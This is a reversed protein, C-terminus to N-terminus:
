TSASAVEQKWIEIVGKGDKSFGGLIIRKDDVSIANVKSLSGAEGQWMQQLGSEEGSDLSYRTIKGLLTSMTLTCSDSFSLAVIPGEAVKRVQSQSEELGGWTKGKKKSGKDGQKREGGFSTLLNGDATGAALIGSSSVAVSMVFPPSLSMGEATPPSELKRRSLTKGQVFDFHMLHMDYGGSVLERPRDPIFKVSGCISEHKTEMISVNKTAIDVIGVLGSDTSFAIHTKDANLSLKSFRNLRSGSILLIITSVENLVDSEEGVDITELANEPSQIMVPLDMRYHSIQHGHAIWADRLETGPRKTCIISSIESGVGKIAKLVKYSSLDYVRLSGDDSGAFLHGAHGLSLSSVHAPLTLVKSCVFKMPEM